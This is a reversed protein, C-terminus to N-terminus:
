IKNTGESYLGITNLWIHETPVYKKYFFQKIYGNKETIM